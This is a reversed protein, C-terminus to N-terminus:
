SIIENKAVASQYKKGLFFSVVFWLGMLSSFFAGYVLGLISTEAFFHQVIDVVVSGFAKSVKTGFTDIWSKAKFKVAKMTPIYLSERLPSSLSYNISGLGIFVYLMAQPTQVLM